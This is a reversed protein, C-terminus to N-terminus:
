QKNVASSGPSVPCRTMRRAATRVKPTWRYRTEPASTFTSSDSNSLTAANTPRCTARIKQAPQVTDLTAATQSPCAKLAANM